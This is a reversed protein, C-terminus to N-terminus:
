VTNCPPVGASRYFRNVNFHTSASFHSALREAIKDLVEGQESADPEFRLDLRVQRIADALAQQEPTM